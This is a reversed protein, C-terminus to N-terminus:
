DYIIFRKKVPEIQVRNQELFRQAQLQGYSLGKARAKAEKEVVGSPKIKRSQVYQAKKQKERSLERKCEWGCTQRRSFVPKSYPQGCIACIDTITRNATRRNRIVTCEDSCVEKSQHNTAFEKGCVVCKRHHKM